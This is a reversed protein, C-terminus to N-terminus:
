AALRRLPELEYLGVGLTKAQRKALAAQTAVEDADLFQGGEIRIAGVSVTACPFFRVIGHRDEGHIGGAQRDKEHYMELALLAFERVILDCRREWDDSQFLLLFDDGGVHGVFDRQPDAHMVALQALRRIVEDGRWYGYHDNFPKFSNIDAHCATFATGSDLLRRIHQSTPINGPLLTLSNAHRAAELRAETVSRVLQDGTGL